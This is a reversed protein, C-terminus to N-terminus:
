GKHKAECTLLWYTGLPADTIGTVKFTMGSFKAMTITDGLAPATAWDSRLLEVQVMNAPLYGGAQLDEKGKTLDGVIASKTVSGITVNQPDDLRVTRYDSLMMASLSM